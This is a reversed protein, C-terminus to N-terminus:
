IVGFLQAIGQVLKIITVKIKNGITIGEYTIKGNLLAEQTEKTPTDSTIITEITEEDSKLRLTPEKPAGRELNTIKGNPDTTAGFEINESTNNIIIHIVQGGFVNKILPLDPIINEVNPNYVDLLFDEAEEVTLATAMPTAIILLAMTIM